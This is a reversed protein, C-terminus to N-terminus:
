SCQGYNVSVLQYDLINIILDNNVDRAALDAGSFVPDDNRVRRNLAGLVRNVDARDVCSRTPSPDTDGVHALKSPTGDSNRISATYDGFSINALGKFFAVGSADVNAQQDPSLMPGSDIGTTQSSLKGFTDFLLRVSVVPRYWPVLDLQPDNDKTVDGTYAFNAVKREWSNPTLGFGQGALNVDFPTDSRYGWCKHAPVGAVSGNPSGSELGDSYIYLERRTTDICSLNYTWLQDLADCAAAALPTAVSVSAAATSLAAELTPMNAATKLVVSGLATSVHYYDTDGHDVNGFGVISIQSDAPLAKLDAKAKELGVEWKQKGPEVSDETM